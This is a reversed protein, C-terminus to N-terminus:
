LIPVSLLEHSHLSVIRIELSNQNSYVSPNMIISDIQSTEKTEPFVDVQRRHFLAAKGFYAQLHYQFSTCIM